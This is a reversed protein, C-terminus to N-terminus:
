LEIGAQEFADAVADVNVDSPEQLEYMTADPASATPREVETFLGFAWNKTDGRIDDAIARQFVLSRGLLKAELSGDKNKTVHVVDARPVEQTREEGNAWEPTSTFEVLDRFRLAILEDKYENLRVNTGMTRLSM